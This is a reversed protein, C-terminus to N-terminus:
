EKMEKNLYDLNNKINNFKEKFQQESETLRKEFENLLHIEEVFILIVDFIAIVLLFYWNM